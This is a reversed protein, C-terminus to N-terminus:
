LTPDGLLQHFAAQLAADENADAADRLQALREDFRREMEAVTQRARQDSKELFAAHLEPIRTEFRQEQQRAEQLASQVLHESDNQAKEVLGAATGEAALLRKLTDDV